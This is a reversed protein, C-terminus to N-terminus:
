SKNFIINENKYNLVEERIILILPILMSIKYRYISMDNVVIVGVSLNFILFLIIYFISKLFNLNALVVFYFILLSIILFNEIILLYLFINNSKSFTPSMIANFGDYIFPIINFNYSYLRLESNIDGEMHYGIKMENVKNVFLNFYEKIFFYDNIFIISFILISLVILFKLLDQTSKSIKEKPFYFFVYIYVASFIGILIMLEIRFLGLLVFSIIFLYLKKYLVSFMCLHFFVIIYIEKLAVSTYILISPSLLLYYYYYNKENERLKRNHFILYILWVVFIFKSFFSLSRVTEIFPLPISAMVLGASGTSLYQGKLPLAIRNKFSAWNGEFIEGMITFYNERVINTSIIYKVQDPFISFDWIVDNGIIPTLSFLSLILFGSKNILNKKFILFIFTLIILFNVLDYLLIFNPNDLEIM